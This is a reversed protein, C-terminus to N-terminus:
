GPDWSGHEFFGQEENGERCEELDGAGRGIVAACRDRVARLRLHQGALM